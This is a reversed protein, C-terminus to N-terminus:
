QENTYPVSVREIINPMEDVLLQLQEILGEVDEAAVNGLGEQVMTITTYLSELEAATVEETDWGNDMALQAAENYLVSLEAVADNITQLQEPTMNAYESEEAPAEEAPAEEAPAEEVVEEAPAELAAEVEAKLATVEDAYGALAALIEDAREQTLEGGEIDAKFAALEESIATLANVTEEPIVDINANVLNVVEDFPGSVKNFEEGVAQADVGGCAVLSFTMAITMMLVLLKKM